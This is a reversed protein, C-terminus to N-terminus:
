INISKPLGSTLMNMVEEVSFVTHLNEDGIEIYKINNNITINNYSNTNNIMKQLTKPHM